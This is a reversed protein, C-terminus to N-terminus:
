SMESCASPSRRPARASGFAGLPASRRSRESPWWRMRRRGEAMVIYNHGTYNHGVAVMADTAAGRREGDAHESLAVGASRGEASGDGKCGSLGRVERELALEGRRMYWGRHMRRVKARRDATGGLGARREELHEM